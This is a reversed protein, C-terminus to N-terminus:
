PRNHGESSVIDAGDPPTFRFQSAHLPQNLELQYASGNHQSDVSELTNGSGMIEGQSRAFAFRLKGKRPLSKEGDIGALIFSGSDQQRQMVGAFGLQLGLGTFNKKARATYMASSLSDARHEYTVVLQTLNLGFDFASIYRLFFLDGTVPDLNYDVSRALIERSLMVEPNRRDRVELAVLEAAPDLLPADEPPAVAGDAAPTLPVDALVLGASEPVVVVVDVEVVVLEAAADLAGAEV